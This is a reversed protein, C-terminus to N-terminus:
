WRKGIHVFISKWVCVEVQKKSKGGDIKEFFVNM